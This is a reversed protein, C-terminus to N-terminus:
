ELPSPLEPHERSPTLERREARRALVLSGAASGGGFVALPVVLPGTIDWITATGHL